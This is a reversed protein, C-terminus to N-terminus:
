DPLARRAGRVLAVWGVGVVAGLVDMVVDKLEPTRLGGLGQIMELAIGFCAVFTVALVPRLRAQGLATLSGLVAYGALHMVIDSVQPGPVDKSPILSAWAVVVFAM